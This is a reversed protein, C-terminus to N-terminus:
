EISKFYNEVFELDSVMTPSATDVDVVGDSDVTYKYQSFRKTVYQPFLSHEASPFSAMDNTAATVAPVDKVGELVRMSQLATTVIHHEYLASVERAEKILTLASAPSESVSLKLNMFSLEMGDDPQAFTLYSGGMILCSFSFIAILVLRPINIYLFKMGGM